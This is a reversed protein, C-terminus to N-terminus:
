WMIHKWRTGFMLNFETNWQALVKASIMCKYNLYLRLNQASTNEKSPMKEESHEDSTLKWLTGKKKFMGLSMALLYYCLCVKLFTNKWKKLSTRCGFIINCFKASFIDKICFILHSLLWMRRHFVYFILEFNFESKFLRM